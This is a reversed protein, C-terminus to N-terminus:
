NKIIKGKNIIRNNNIIHYFYIGKNFHNIDIVDKALRKSFLLRGNSDYFKIIEKELYDGINILGNSPNPYITLDNLTADNLSTETNNGKFESYYFTKNIRWNDSTETFIDKPINKSKLENESYHGVDDNPLAVDNAEYRQDFETSVKGPNIWNQEDLDWKYAITEIYNGNMTIYNYKTTPILSPNNESTSFIYETRYNDNDYKYEHQEVYGSTTGYSLKSQSYVHKELNGSEDHFYMHSYITTDIYNDYHFYENSIYEILYDDSYEYMDIIIYFLIWEADATERYYADTRTINGSNDYEYDAKYEVELIGDDLEGEIENILNGSMDYEYISYSDNKWMSAEIDWLYGKKELIKEDKFIRVNKLNNIWGEEENWDYGFTVTSDSGFSKWLNSWTGLWVKRDDDFIYDKYQNLNGNEDYMFESKLSNELFSDSPRKFKDIISDLKISYNAFKDVGFIEVDKLNLKILNLNEKFSVLREIKGTSDQANLTNTSLIISVLAIIINRM